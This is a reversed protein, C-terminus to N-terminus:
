QCCKDSAVAPGIGMIDPACGTVAFSLLKGLIPLKLQQAKRRSALLVMAAGDTTQSSNGATTSGGVQFAPKLKALAALTMLAGAIWLGTM